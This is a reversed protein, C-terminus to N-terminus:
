NSDVTPHNLPAPHGIVARLISPGASRSEAEEQLTKHPTQSTMWDYAVAFLPNVFPIASILGVVCATTGVILAALSVAFELIISTWNGDTLQRARPFCGIGPLKEDVLVHAFPFFMTAILIGPFVCATLGFAVVLAFLISNFLLRAVFRGGSFLDGM